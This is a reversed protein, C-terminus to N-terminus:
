HVENENGLTALYRLASLGPLFFYGGGRITIFRQLGDVYQSVPDKQMAFRFNGDGQRYRPDMPDMTGIIPDPDNYLTAKNPQLNNAWIHQIFEFQQQIDANLGMFLLGKEQNGEPGLDYLRGRRIIRHRKTVKLSQKKGQDRFSDRPNNRRLHSGLPCKLGHPDDDAYGFDNDTSEIKPDNEPHKVLPAGGPWRGIMKSALRVKAHTDEEGTPLETKKKMFEWFDDVHQQIQRFAIYTGNRGLDKHGSDNADPPLLNLDGQADTILPTNPYLNHENLYGLVFEGTAVIDNDPGKRGSGKIVPQSISDHFGFHEKSDNRRYGGIEWIIELAQETDGPKDPNKQSLLKVIDKRMRERFVDLQEPGAAYLALLVDVRKEEKGGWTWRDPDSGGWDGLIRQRVPDTMGVKFPIPFNRVNKESLGIAQLGTFTFAINMSLGPDYRTAPTVRPILDHLMKRAVEGNNIKLFFFHSLPLQDYGRILLGQIDDLEISQPNPILTM